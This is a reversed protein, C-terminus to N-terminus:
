TASWPRKGFGFAGSVLARICSISSRRASRESSRSVSAWSRSAVRPATMAFRERLWVDPRPRTSRRSSVGLVDAQVRDIDVDDRLRATLAQGDALRRVRGTSAGTSSAQARRRLPGFLGLVLLTSGAVALSEGQALQGLVAGLGIGAVAFVAALVGTVPCIFPLPQDAPRHRIPRPAPDRDRDGRAGTSRHVRVRGTGNRTAGRQDPASGAMAVGTIAVIMALVFWKM